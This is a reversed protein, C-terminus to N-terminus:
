QGQNSYQTLPSLAWGFFADGSGTMLIIGIFLILVGMLKYGLRSGGEAGLNEDFRIFYINIRSIFKKVINYLDEPSADDGIYLNFKKCTQNDISILTKELFNGKFAPIIIALKTEEM